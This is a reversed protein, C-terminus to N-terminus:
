VAIKSNKGPNNLVYRRIEAFNQFIRGGFVVVAALYLDIRLLSGFWTLLMSLTTNLFFGSLFVSASFHGALAARGGGVASDLAALLGVAVYVTWQTSIYVPCYIGLLIGAALGAAALLATAGPMRQYSRGM